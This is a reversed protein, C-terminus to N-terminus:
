CLALQASKESTLPHQLSPLVQIHHELHESLGQIRIIESPHETTLILLRAEASSTQNQLLYLAVPLQPKSESVNYLIRTTALGIRHPRKEILSMFQLCNNALNTISPLSRHQYLVGTQKTTFHLYQHCCSSISILQWGIFIDPLTMVLYSAFNSWKVPRPLSRKSLNLVLQHPLCLDLIGFRVTVWVRILYGQSYLPSRPLIMTFLRKTSLHYPVRSFMM